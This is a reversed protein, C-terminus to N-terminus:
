PPQIRPKLLVLQLQVPKVHLLPIQQYSILDTPHLM